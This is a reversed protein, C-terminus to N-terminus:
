PGGLQERRYRKLYLRTQAYGAALWVLILVGLLSVLGRSAPFALALVAAVALIGAALRIMTRTMRRTFQRLAASDGVGQQRLRQEFTSYRQRDRRSVRGFPDNLKVDGVERHGPARAGSLFFLVLHAGSRRYGDLRQVQSLLWM